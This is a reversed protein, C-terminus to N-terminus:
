TIQSAAEDVNRLVHDDARAITLCLVTEVDARQDFSTLNHLREAFADEPPHCQAINDIWDAALHQNRSARFDVLVANPGDLVCPDLADGDTESISGAEVAADIRNTMSMRPSPPMTMSNYSSITTMSSTGVENLPVM